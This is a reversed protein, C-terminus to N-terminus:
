INPVYALTRAGARELLAMLFVHMCFYEVAFPPFGFYGPIPMEFMKAQQLIPFIYIWKGSAWYNWFEWFIGCVAGAILLAYLRGRRGRELDDLVSPAGMRSNIPDLLFIFGLWVLGFLYAAARRPVVLPLALMAAGLPAMARRATTSTRLPRYDRRWLGAASLFYATEIMAPWITSFSWAYGGYRALPESPVGIYTWNELRLNYAEFILWFPTSVAAVALFERGRHTLLSSGALSYVAADMVAIYGTWAIPTFYTSVPERGRFLMLEAVAIVVLGLYGYHPFPRVHPRRWYLSTMWGAAAVFLAGGIATTM